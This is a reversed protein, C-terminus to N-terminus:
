SKVELAAELAARMARRYRSREADNQEANLHPSPQFDATAREVMDDTIGGVLVIVPTGIRVRPDNDHRITVRNHGDQIFEDGNDYGGLAAGQVVGRIIKSM